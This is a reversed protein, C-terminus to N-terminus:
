ASPNDDKHCSDSATDAPEQINKDEDVHVVPKDEDFGIRGKEILAVGKKIRHYQILCIIAVIVMVSAFIYGVFTNEPRTTEVVNPADPVTVVLMFLSYFALSMSLLCFSLITLDKNKFAARLASLSSGLKILTYISIGVTMGFSKRITINGIMYASTISEMAIGMFLTLWSSARFGFLEKEHRKYFTNYLLYIRGIFGIFLYQAAILYFLSDMIYGYAFYFITMALNLFSGLYSFAMRRFRKEEGMKKLFRRWGGMEKITRISFEIISYVLYIGSLLLIIGIPIWYSPMMLVPFISTLFLSIDVLVLFIFLEIVIFGYSPHLFKKM